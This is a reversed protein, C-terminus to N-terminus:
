LSLSSTKPQKRIDPPTITLLEWAKHTPADDTTTRSVAALDCFTMARVMRCASTFPLRNSSRHRPDARKRGARHQGPMDVGVRLLHGANESPMMMGDPVRRTSASAKEAASFAGTRRLLNPTNLIYANMPVAVIAQQENTTHEKMGIVFYCALQGDQM